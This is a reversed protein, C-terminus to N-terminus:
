QPKCYIAKARTGNNVIVGREVLAKLSRRATSATLGLQKAFDATTFYSSKQLMTDISDLMETDTIDARSYGPTVNQTTFNRCYLHQM